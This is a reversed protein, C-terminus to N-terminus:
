LEYNEYHMPNPLSGVTHMIFFDVTYGDFTIYEICQMIKKDHHDGFIPSIHDFDLCTVLPNRDSAIGQPNIYVIKVWMRHM